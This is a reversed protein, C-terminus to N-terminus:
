PSCYACCIEQMTYQEFLDQFVGHTTHFRYTIEPPVIMVRMSYPKGISDDMAM